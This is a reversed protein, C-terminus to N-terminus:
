PSMSSPPRRSRAKPGPWSPPGSTRDRHRLGLAGVIAAVILTLTVAQGRSLLTRASLRDPLPGTPQPPDDDLGAAPRPDAPPSPSLTQSM